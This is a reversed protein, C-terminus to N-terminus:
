LESTKFQPAYFWRDGEIFESLVHTQGDEFCFVFAQTIAYGIKQRWGVIHCVRREGNTDISTRRRYVLKQRAKLHVTVVVRDNDVISIAVVRSRDIRDSSIEIGGQIQKLVTGDGYTAEWIM